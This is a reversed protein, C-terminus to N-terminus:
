GITKIKDNKAKSFDSANPIQTSTTPGTMGGSLIGGTHVHAKYETLFNNHDQKLKDLEQKLENYKVAYNTTGGIEIEGTNRLWVYFKETGKDDTAFFRYEGVEAKKDKVLYGVIVAKGKENTLAYVAITDKIPNSDLGYASVEIPTQIDDKGFRAIKILRRKLKDLETSIIKGFTMM